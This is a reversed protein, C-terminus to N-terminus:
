REKEGFILVEKKLKIGFKEYVAKQAIKILEAYEEVTGYGENIFFNAHKESIKIGGYKYGKLGVREIYYGASIGDHKKFVSGLSRGLPQEQMRKEKVYAMQHTIKECDGVDLEFTVSVIFDVNKRLNCYRYSFMIEDKSLVELQKKDFDYVTVEKILDSIETGFAGSNNVVAGGVSGPIGYLNELGRLSYDRAIACVKRLSEGCYAKIYVGDKKIGKIGDSMVAIGNYDGMVVVNSMKAFFAFEDNDHRVAINELDQVSTPFVAKKLKGGCKLYSIISSDVEVLDTSM